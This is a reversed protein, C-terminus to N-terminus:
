RWFVRRARVHLEAVLNQRGSSLSVFWVGPEIIERQLGSALGLVWASRAEGKSRDPDEESRVAWDMMLQEQDFHPRISEFEPTPELWGVEWCSGDVWESPAHTVIGIGVGGGFIQFREM